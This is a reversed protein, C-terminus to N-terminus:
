EPSDLITCLRLIEAAADKINLKIVTGFLIGKLPPQHGRFGYDIGHYLFPVLRYLKLVQTGRRRGRGGKKGEGGGRGEGWRGHSM